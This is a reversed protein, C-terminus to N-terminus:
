TAVLFILSDGNDYFLDKYNLNFTINYEKIYFNIDPTFEKNINKHCSLYQYTNQSQYIKCKQGFIDTILNFYQFTSIIFNNEM